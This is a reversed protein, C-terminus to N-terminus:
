SRDKDQPGPGLLYEVDARYEAPIDGSTGVDFAAIITAAEHVTFIGAKQAVCLKVMLRTNELDRDSM